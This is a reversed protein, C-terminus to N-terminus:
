FASLFSTTRARSDMLCSKHKKGRADYHSWAGWTCYPFLQSYNYKNYLQRKWAVNGFSHRWVPFLECNSVFHQGSVRINNRAALAGIM